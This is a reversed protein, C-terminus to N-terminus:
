LAKVSNPGSPCGVSAQRGNYKLALITIDDSQPHTQAHRAIEAQVREIVNRVDPNCIGWVCAKLRSESFVEERSNEAETVGDTYLLLLEGPNLRLTKSQYQCNEEFGIVVGQPLDLYEAAGSSSCLLPPNHGASCCEAEGTDTNLLLCFVTVFMSECNDPCILNNVRALIEGVPYGRMAESKLLAKSVAMFLAAPVGKGSVDGVLVCLKKDNVLFFDYLDGGVEKAAEMIAYLDFENRDPFAPFTRPLLSAQIDRAIRLETNIRERAATEAKLQEIFRKISLQIINIGLAPERSILAKVEDSTLTYAEVDEEAVASATRNKEPSFIGMEGIIQGAQMFLNIEPLRIIGKSVYYLKEAKEGMKFLYEGKRFTERTM